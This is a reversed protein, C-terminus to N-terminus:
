PLLEVPVADADYVRPRNRGIYARAQWAFLLAFAIVFAAGAWFGTWAARFVMAAIALAFCGLLAMAVRYVRLPLGASFTARSGLEALRRHLSLIFARYGFDQTEMLTVTQWTTSYITIHQGNANKIDARYRKAQMSVPRYSLKVSAITSIPWVGSRGKIRWRLGAEDLEFQQASAILSAKYAYRVPQLSATDTM